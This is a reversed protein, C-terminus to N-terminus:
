ANERLSECQRWTWNPTAVRAQQREEDPKKQSACLVTREKHSIGGGPTRDALITGISALATKKGNMGTTSEM